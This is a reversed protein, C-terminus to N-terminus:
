DRDRSTRKSACAWILPRRRGSRSGAHRSVASTARRLEQNGPPYFGLHSGNLEGLMLQVVTTFAEADPAEAAMDTYKRRIAPWDRNGLREDYWTDRMTRWCLDFAARNRQSLDVRQLAQFRYGGSSDGAPM